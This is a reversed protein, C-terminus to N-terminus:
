EKEILAILLSGRTVTVRVPNGVYHNSVGLPFSSTLVADHVTYQGGEITVGQADAGM